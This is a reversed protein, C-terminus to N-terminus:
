RFARNLFCFGWYFIEDMYLIYIYIYIYSMLLSLTLRRMINNNKESIKIIKPIIGSHRQNPDFSMPQAYYEKVRELKNKWMM